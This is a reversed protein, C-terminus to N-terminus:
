YSRAVLLASTVIYYSQIKGQSCGTHSVRVPRVAHHLEELVRRPQSRNTPRLCRAHERRTRKWIANGKIEFELVIIEELHAGDPNKKRVPRGVSLRVQVSFSPPGQFFRALLLRGQEIRKQLLHDLWQHGRDGSGGVLPM